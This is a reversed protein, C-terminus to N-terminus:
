RNEGKAKENLKLQEEWAASEEADLPEIKICYGSTIFDPTSFNLYAGVAVATGEVSYEGDENVTYKGRVTIEARQHDPYPTMSMVGGEQMNTSAITADEYLVNVVQGISTHRVTEIVPDGEKVLDKFKNKVTPLEVTFDIYRAGDANGGQPRLFIFAAAAIVIALVAIIIIDIINIGKNKQEM